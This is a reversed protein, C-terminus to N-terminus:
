SWMSQGVALMFSLGSSWGSSTEYTIFVVDATQKTTSTALLTVTIVLVGLLSIWFFVSQTKSLISPAITVILTTSFNVAAYVLWVHWRQAVYQPELVEALGTVSEAIFISGSSTAFLYALINLWATVFALPARYELRSIM